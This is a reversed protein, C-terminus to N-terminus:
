DLSHNKSYDHVSILTTGYLITYYHGGKELNWLSGMNLEEFGNERLFAVSEEIVHFPSTAKGIYDLLELSKM